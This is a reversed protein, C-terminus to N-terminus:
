RLAAEIWSSSSVAQASCCPKSGRAKLIQLTHEGRQARALAERDPQTGPLDDPRPPLLPGGAIDWPSQASPTTPGVGHCLRGAHVKGGPEPGFVVEAVAHHRGEGVHGVLLGLLGDREGVLQTVEQRLSRAHAGVEGLEFREILGDGLELLAAGVVGLGVARAVEVVAGGVEAVEHEVLGALGALEEDGLAGRDISAEGAVHHVPAVGGDAADVVLELLALLEPHLHGAPLPLAEHGGPAGRSM